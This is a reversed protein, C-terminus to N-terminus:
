LIPPDCYSQLVVENITASLSLQGARVKEIDFNKGDTRVPIPEQGNYPTSWGNSVAAWPLRRGTGCKTLSLPGPPTLRTFSFVRTRKARLADVAEPMTYLAPYDGERPFDTKDTLGDGDRDGYNDPRELFTDDTVLIVVRTATDRWPFSSAAAYLADVSNEECIPNQMTPGTPGDGPNRNPTTYTTKYYRFATKLTAGATHVVGGALPGTDDLKYNDVFAILGFHPDPALGAAATVVSDIEAELKDLIFEMSSSVDLVFVVDVVDECITADWPTADWAPADVQAGADRAAADIEAGTDTPGCGVTTLLAFLTVSRRM